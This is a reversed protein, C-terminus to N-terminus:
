SRAAWGESREMAIQIMDIAQDESRAEGRVYASPWPALREPMLYEIVYNDKSLGLVGVFWPFQSTDKSLLFLREHSTLGYVPREDRQARLRGILAVMTKGIGSSVPERSVAFEGYFDELTQRKQDQCRRLNM